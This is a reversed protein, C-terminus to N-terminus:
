VVNGPAVQPRPRLTMAAAVLSGVALATCGAILLLGAGVALALDGPIGILLLGVGLQWAVLRPVALMGLIARQRAHVSPSGPGISPVLHTWSGTLAQAAWGLAVPALLLSADWGRATAGGSWATWTAIATGVVFWCIACLLSSLAYRHWDPDTTWRGRRTVVRRAHRLLALAGVLELLSGAMVVADARLLFGGATVLPGVMLAALVVMSTGTREIRSGAVTPLLHILSAGIVLSLFGFVDLWAHAPKSVGWADLVPGWGAFALTGIGAGLAVCLLAVGYSAALIARRPGLALRLPLLTAAAVAAIGTLYVCGALLGPWGVVLSGGGTIRVLVVLAAGIAVGSVGTIRIAAPAAPVSAVAASFFPMVGAIATAGAGALLLHLPLWWGLRVSAPTLLSLAALIVFLAAIAIAAM